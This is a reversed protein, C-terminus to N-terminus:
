ACDDGTFAHAVAVRLRLDALTGTNEITLDPTVELQESVHGSSVLGPREVKWIVGGRERIGAVENPFRVDEAVVDARQPLSAAWIRVWLDPHVADRGWETGLTVMLHRPSVGLEPHPAEKLDGEIMREVDDECHGIERLLHRTMNKLPASFRHRTFGFDRILTNAVESKGSGALGTLGILM